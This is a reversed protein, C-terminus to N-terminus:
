ILLEDRSFENVGADRVAYFKGLFNITRRSAVGHRTKAFNLELKGEVARMDIEWQEHTDRGGKMEGPKPEEDKLYVEPRYLLVVNDADEELSGSERLDSPKPRKDPRQEVDRSVQSLAMVHVDLETKMRDLLESIQRMGDHGSLRRGQEDYARYLRTHDVVVLALKHGRAAWMAKHRAALSWVRRIDCRGTPVFRIPLLEARERVKEIWRREDVSLGGKKLRAHEIGRGMAFSLDSTVRLGFQEASGEAFCCLVAAGNIAYGLALSQALTSKGMGPRGALVTFQQPELAGLGKDFDSVLANMVGAQGADANIREDREAAMGIMDGASFEPTEAGRDEVRWVTQEIAGAIEGVPRDFDTSLSEMAQHMSLRVARRAALDAVQEAIARAGAVAAPNDVLEALYDGYRCDQDAMFVPRLTVADALKGVAAFKMLAAHIRQHVPEGFADSALRDSLTTILANDILMAGLLAQEAVPNILRPDSM